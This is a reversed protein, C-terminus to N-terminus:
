FGGLMSMAPMLEEMASNSVKFKGKLTKGSAKLSSSALIKKVPKKFPDPLSGVKDKLQSYGDVAQKPMESSAFDMSFGFSMGSADMDLWGHGGSVTDSAPTGSADGAFWFAKSRDAKAIMAKIGASDAASSKKASAIFAELGSRDPSKPMAGLEMDMSFLVTTPAVFYYSADTTGGMGDPVGVIQAFKGDADVKFTYGGIEACKKMTDASLNDFVMSLNFGSGAMGVGGAFNSSSAEKAWCSMYEQMGNKDGGMEAAMEAMKKLPSTDWNKLFQKYNGGFVVKSSEPLHKLLTSESEKLAGSPQGVSDSSKECGVVSIALLGCLALKKAAQM